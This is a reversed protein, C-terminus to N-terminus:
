DGAKGSELSHVPYFSLESFSLFNLRLGALRSNTNVTKSPRFSTHTIPSDRASEAAEKRERLSEHMRPSELASKGFHKISWKWRGYYM